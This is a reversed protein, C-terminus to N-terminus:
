KLEEVKLINKQFAPYNKCWQCLQFQYTSNKAGQYTIRAVYPLHTCGQLGEIGTEKIRRQSECVDCTEIVPDKDHYKSGCVECTHRYYGSENKM